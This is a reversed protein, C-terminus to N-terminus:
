AIKRYNKLANYFFIKSVLLSEFYDDFLGGRKDSCVMYQYIKMCSPVPYFLLQKDTPFLASSFSQNKRYQANLEICEMDFTFPDCNIGDMYYEERPILSGNEDLIPKDTYEDYQFMLHRQAESYDTNKSTIHKLIAM